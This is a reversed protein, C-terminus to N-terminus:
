GEIAIQRPKAEAKKPLTITLVGNECHAKVAETNVYAPLVITRLFAGSAREACFLQAKEGYSPTREGRFWLLDGQIKMEISKSDCGPLDAVITLQNEDEYVDVPPSWTVAAQEDQVAQFLSNTIEALDAFPKMILSTM